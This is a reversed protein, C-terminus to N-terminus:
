RVGAIGTQHGNPTWEQLARYLSFLSVLFFLCAVLNLYFFLKGIYRPLEVVQRSYRTPIGTEWGIRKKSGM